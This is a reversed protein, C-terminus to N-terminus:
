YISNWTNPRKSWDFPFPHNQLFPCFFCILRKFRNWEILFNDAKRIKKESQLTKRCITIQPCCSPSLSVHSTYLKLYCHTRRHSFISIFPKSTPLTLTKPTSQIDISTISIFQDSHLFFCSLLYSPVPKLKLNFVCKSSKWKEVCKEMIKWLTGTM